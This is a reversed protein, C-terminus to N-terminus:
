ETVLMAQMALALLDAMIIPAAQTQIATTLEPQANTLIRVISATEQSVLTVLARSAALLTAAPPM